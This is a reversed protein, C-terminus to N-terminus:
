QLFLCASRCTCRFSSLCCCYIVAETSFFLKLDLHHQVVMLVFLFVVLLAVGVLVGVPLLRADGVEPAQADSDSPLFDKVTAM